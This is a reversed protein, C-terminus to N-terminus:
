HALSGLQQLALSNAASSITAANIALSINVGIVPAININFFLTERTPLLEALQSDLEHEAIVRNTTM